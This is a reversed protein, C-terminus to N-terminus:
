PASSNYEVYCGYGFPPDCVFTTPGNTLNNSEGTGVALVVQGSLVRYDWFPVHNPPVNCPQADYGTKDQPALICTYARLLTQIQINTFVAQTGNGSGFIGGSVQNWHNLNLGM